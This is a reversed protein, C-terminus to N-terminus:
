MERALAFGDVRGAGAAILTSAAAVMTAGTTLVDDILLIHEGSLSEATWAFAGRMNDRREVEGRGVQSPTDVRRSLGSQRPLEIRKAFQRSLLEAQDFGRQRRRRPHLPVFAITDWRPAEVFEPRFIGHFM